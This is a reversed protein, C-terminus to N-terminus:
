KWEPKPYWPDATRRADCDMVEFVGNQWQGINGLYIDDALTNNTFRLESHMVTDFPNDRIYEVLTLNNIRGDDTLEGANEVAQQLIQMASYYCIHGWWDQYVTESGADNPSGDAKQWFLGKETWYRRFHDSYEGTGTNHAASRGNWAGWSFVGDITTNAPDGFVFSGFSDFSGGPGVFYMTPNYGLRAASKTIAVSEGSGTYVLFADAGSRMANDVLEDPDFGESPVSEMGRMEIGIAELASKTAGVYEIGRLDATYVIYTSEVGAEKFFKVLAPIQTESYNLVSYTNPNDSLRKELEKGAGEAALLLYDYKQAIASCAITSETGEPAIVLDPKESAAIQEFLQTTKTVDSGGDVIQVDVKVLRDLSKVYLGGAQNIEDAWMRYQPGFATQEFIANAGTMPRVGRITVVDKEMDSQYGREVPLGGGSDGGNNDAPPATAAGEDVSGSDGGGADNCAGLALLAALVVVPIIAHKKKM